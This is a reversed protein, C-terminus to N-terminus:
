LLARPGRRRANQRFVFLLVLFAALPVVYAPEPTTAIFGYTNPGSVYSGVMEGSDNIGNIQVPLGGPAQLQTIQGHAYFDDGGVIQLSDNFGTPLFPLQGLDTLKGNTDVVIDGNGAQGLIQNNNNIALPTFSLQSFAGNQYVYGSSINNLYDNYFGVITGSNNIGTIYSGYYYPTLGPYTLMGPTSSGLPPPEIFGNTDYDLNSSYNGVITQSNNFGVPTGVCFTGCDAVPSLDPSLNEYPGTVCAGASYCTTFQSVGDYYFWAPPLGGNFNFCCTSGIVQGNDNIALAQTDSPGHWYPNVYNLTTFDASLPMVNFAFAALCLLAAKIM